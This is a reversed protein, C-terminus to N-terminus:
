ISNRGRISVLTYQAAPKTYQQARREKVYKDSSGVMYTMKAGVWCHLPQRQPRHPRAHDSCKSLKCWALHLRHLHRRLHHRLHRRHGHRRQRQRQRRIKKVKLWLRLANEYKTPRIQCAKVAHRHLKWTWKLRRRVRRAGLRKTESRQHKMLHRYSRLSSDNITITVACPTQTLHCCRLLCRNWQMSACKSMANRQAVDAASASRKPCMRATM